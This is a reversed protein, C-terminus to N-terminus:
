IVVDAADLVEVIEDPLERFRIVREHMHKQDLKTGIAIIEGLQNVRPGSVRIAAPQNGELHNIKIREVRFLTGDIYSDGADIVPGDEIDITQYHTVVRRKTNSAIKM